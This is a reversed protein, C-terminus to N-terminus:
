AITSKMVIDNDTQYVDITLQGESDDQRSLRLDERPPQSPNVIIENQNESYIDQKPEIVRPREFETDNDMKRAGTLKEFFSRKVKM